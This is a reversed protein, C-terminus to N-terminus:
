LQQVGVDVRLLICVRVIAADILVDLMPALAQYGGM